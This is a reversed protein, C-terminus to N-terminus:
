SSWNILFTESVNFSAQDMLPFLPSAVMVPVAYNQVSVVVSNRALNDTTPTGDAEFYEIVITDRDAAQALFPWANAVVIDKIVDDQGLPGQAGSLTRGTIAFRVGERTAQRLAAKAFVWFCFSFTTLIISIFLLFCLSFEIVAQGTRGGRRESM